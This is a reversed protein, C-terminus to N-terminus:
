PAELKSFSLSRLNLDIGPDADPIEVAISFWYWKCASDSIRIIAQHAKSGLPILLMNEPNANREACALRASFANLGAEDRVSLKWDLSYDGPSLPLLQRAATGRAGGIASILMGGNKADISAGLNGSAALEWDFPPLRPEASFDANNLLNASSRAQSIRPELGKAMDRAADFEGIRVLGSLIRLDTPKVETQRWPRGAIALRLKAANVLSNPRGAVLQWYDDSWNPGAGIIPTLAKIAGDKATADAMASGYVKKAENGTLMLRSLWTFFARDDNRQAASKILENNVLTNRRSLRGASELLSQRRRAEAENPMSLALIALASMSLPESRYAQRALRREMASVSGDHGQAQRAALFLTATGAEARGAFPGGIALANVPSRKENAIAYSWAGVAAALALAILWGIITKITM